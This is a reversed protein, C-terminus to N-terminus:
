HILELPLVNAQDPLANVLRIQNKTESVFSDIIKIMVHHLISTHKALYVNYVRESYRVLKSSRLSLFAVIIYIFFNACFVGGVTLLFRVHLHVKFAKSFM